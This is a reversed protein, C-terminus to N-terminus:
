KKVAGGPLCLINDPACTHNAWFRMGKRAHSDKKMEYLPDDQDETGPVKRIFLWHEELLWIAHKVDDRGVFLNPVARFQGVLTKLLVSRAFSVKEAGAVRCMIQKAVPDLENLRDYYFRAAADELVYGGSPTIGPVGKGLDKIDVKPRGEEEAMAVIPAAVILSLVVIFIQGAAVGWTKDDLSRAAATEPRERSLRRNAEIRPM